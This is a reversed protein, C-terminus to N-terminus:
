GGLAVYVMTFLWYVLPFILNYLPFYWPTKNAKQFCIYEIIVLIPTITHVLLDSLTNPEYDIGNLYPRLMLNYVLGTLIIAVTAQTKLVQLFRSDDKKFLIILYVTAVLINSQITFYAYQRFPTRSTLSNLLFGTIAAIVVIIRIPKQYKLLKENM